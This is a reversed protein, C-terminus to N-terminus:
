GNALFDLLKALRTKLDVKIACLALSVAGPAVLADIMIKHRAKSYVPLMRDTTKIRSIERASGKLLAAPKERWSFMKRRNRHM